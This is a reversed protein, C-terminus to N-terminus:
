ALVGMLRKGIFHAANCPVANGAQMTREGINGTFQYGVPFRQASAHERWRVVRYFCDMPDITLPRLVGASERTSVTPLPQGDARRAVSGKRYPIVLAHHDKTTVTGFPETVPMSLHQPQANGGYNKVLFSGPPVALGHHNGQAAVTAMPDNVTTAKGNRRLVTLFPQVVCDSTSTTVVPMPEAHVARARGSTRNPVVLPTVVGEGIKVSRVSMPAEDAQYTRTDDHNSNVVLPPGTLLGHSDQATVTGLPQADAPHCRYRAEGAGGYNKIYVPPITVADCGTAQRTSLPARTAPWARHYGPREYTNGAVQAIVPEAFERLGWEIRAMTNAALPRKRDGIRVGLDTLDLAAIAPLVYPEVISTECKRHPCRYVYQNRQGYKGVPNPANSKWSQVGEVVEECVFCWSPPRITLDPLPVTKHTFVIYIRDRWQPAPANDDDYVHAASVNLVQVNYGLQCMGRVWWDYLEWDRAFEVVNEVVVAKYRHVEAARVVDLACARTREYAENPVHGLEELDLSGQNRSRKRGGAPSVETCIVSAWLIDSRPLRRMDYFNIDACLFDADRYNSSVTEIARDWHNAGLQLEFGAEVLGTIDGGAGCFLSTFTPGSTM